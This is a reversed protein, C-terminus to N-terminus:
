QVDTTQDIVFVWVEVAENRMDVTPFITIFDGTSPEVKRVKFDHPHRNFYVALNAALRHPLTRENARPGTMVIAARALAENAPRLDARAPMFVRVDDERGVNVYEPSILEMTEWNELNMTNTKNELEPPPKHHTQYKIEQQTTRNTTPSKNLLTCRSSQHGIGQCKHCKFANRCQNKNHGKELCKFCRGQAKLM